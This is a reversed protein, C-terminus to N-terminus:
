RWAKRSGVVPGVGVRDTATQARPEGGVPRSTLFRARRARGHGEVPLLTGGPLHVSDKDCHHHGPFTRIGPLVSRSWHFPTIRCVVDPRHHGDLIPYQAVVPDGLRVGIQGRPQGGGEPRVRGVPAGEGGPRRARHAPVQPPLIQGVPQVPPYHPGVAHHARDPLEVVAELLVMEVEPDVADPWLVEGLEDAVEESGAGGIERVPVGLDEGLDRRGGGHEDFAELPVGVVEMCEPDLHEPRAFPCGLEFPDVPQPHSEGVPAVGQGLRVRDPAALEDQRAGEFQTRVLLMVKLTGDGSAHVHTQVLREILELTTEHGPQGRGRRDLFRDIGQQVRQALADAGDPAVEHGFQQARDTQGVPDQPEITVHGRKRALFENRGVEFRDHDVVEPAQEFAEVAGLLVALSTPRHVPDVQVLSHVEDGVQEPGSVVASLQELHGEVGGLERSISFFRM